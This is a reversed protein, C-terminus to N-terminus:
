SKLAKLYKQALEKADGSEAFKELVYPLSVNGQMIDVKGGDVLIFSPVMEVRLAKFLNPNIELRIGQEHLQRIHAVTKKFSNEKFGRLVLRAGIREAITDLTKLLEEPMSLSVLIFLSKEFKLDDGAAAVLAQYDRQMQPLSIIPANDDAKEQETASLQKEVDAVIAKATEEDKQPVSVAWAKYDVQRQNDSAKEQIKVVLADYSANDALVQLPSVFFLVSFFLILPRLLKKEEL